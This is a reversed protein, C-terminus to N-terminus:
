YHATIVRGVVTGERVLAIGATGRVISLGAVVGRFTWLEDGEAILEKLAEWGFPDFGHAASEPILERLEAFRGRRSEVEEVTTQAVLWETPVRTRVHKRADLRFIARRYGEPDPLRTIIRQWEGAIVGQQDETLSQLASALNIRLSRAVDLVKASPVGLQRAVEFVRVV